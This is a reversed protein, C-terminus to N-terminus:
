KEKFESGITIEIEDIDYWAGCKKCYLKVKM